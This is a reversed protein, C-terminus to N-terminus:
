HTQTQTQPSFKLAFFPFPTQPTNENKHRHISATKISGCSLKAMPLLYISTPEWQLSIGHTAQATGLGIPGAMIALPLKATSQPLTPELLARPPELM